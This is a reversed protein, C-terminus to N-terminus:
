EPIKEIAGGGIAEERSENMIKLQLHDFAWARVVEQLDQWLAAIYDEVSAEIQEPGWEMSELVPPASMKAEPGVVFIEVPPGPVKIVEPICPPADRMSSCGWLMFVLGVALILLAWFITDGKRDEM